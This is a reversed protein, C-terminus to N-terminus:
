VYLLSPVAHSTWRLGKNQKGTSYELELVLLLHAVRSALPTPKFYLFKNIYSQM